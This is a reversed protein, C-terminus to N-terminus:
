VLCLNTLLHSLYLGLFPVLSVSKVKAGPSSHCSLQAKTLREKVLFFLAVDDVYLLMKPNNSVTGVTRQAEQRTLWLLFHGAVFWEFAFMLM